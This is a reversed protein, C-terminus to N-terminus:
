IPLVECKGFAPTSCLGKLSKFPRFFRGKSCRSKVDNCIVEILSISIFVVAFLARLFSPFNHFFKSVCFVPSSDELGSRDWSLVWMRCTRPSTRSNDLVACDPTLARRSYAYRFPISEVQHVTKISSTQYSTAFCPGMIFTVELISVGQPLM